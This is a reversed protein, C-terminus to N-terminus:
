ANGRNDVLRLIWPWDWATLTAASRAALMSGIRRLALVTTIRAPEAGPTTRAATPRDM